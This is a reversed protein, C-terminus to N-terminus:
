KLRVNKVIIEFLTLIFADSQQGYFAQNKDKHWVKHVADM